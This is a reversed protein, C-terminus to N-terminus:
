ADRLARLKERLKSPNDRKFADVFADDEAIRRDIEAQHDHYYALAAYVGAFPLDYKAVIEDVSQGLRRHMIVVDDVTIRRGAIRPRGGRVGPTVEIHADLTAAKM